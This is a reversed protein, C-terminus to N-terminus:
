MISIVPNSTLNCVCFWENKQQFILQRTMIISLFLSSSVSKIVPRLVQLAVTKILKDTKERVMRSDQFCM